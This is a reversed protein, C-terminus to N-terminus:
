SEPYQTMEQEPRLHHGTEPLANAEQGAIKVRRTFGGLVPYRGAVYHGQAEECTQTAPHGSDDQDASLLDSPILTAV